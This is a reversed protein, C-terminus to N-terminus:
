LIEVKKLDRFHHDKTLIILGYILASALVFSDLMGWNKNVRKRQFNLKGALISVSESLDLIQTLGTVFKVFKDADLNNKSAWNSIEALSVMTTYCPKTKLYNGVKEGKDSKIFFEIWASTDLLHM